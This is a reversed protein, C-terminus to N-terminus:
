PLGAAMGILRGLWPSSYTGFLIAGIAYWMYKRDAKLESVDSKLSIVAELIPNGSKDSM